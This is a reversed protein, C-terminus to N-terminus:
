LDYHSSLGVFIGHLYLWKYDESDDFYSEIADLTNMSEPLNYKERINNALDDQDVGYVSDALYGDNGIIQGVFRNPFYKGELDNTMFIDDAGNEIYYYLKTLTSAFKEEKMLQNIILSRDDPSYEEFYLATQGDKEILEPNLWYVDDSKYKAVDVGLNTLTNVVEKGGTKIAESLSLLADKQGEVWYLVSVHGM